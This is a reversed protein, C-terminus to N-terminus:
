VVLRVFIVEKTECEFRPASQQDLQREKPSVATLVYLSQAM